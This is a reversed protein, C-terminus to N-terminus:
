KKAAIFKKLFDVWPANEAFKIEAPNYRPRFNDGAAPFYIVLGTSDGIDRTAYHAERVVAKKLEANTKDAKAKLSSAAPDKSLLNLFHGLDRAEDDGDYGTTQSRANKALAPNKAMDTALDMLAPTLGSVVATTDAASLTYEEPGSYQNGGPSYSKAFVDVMMKAYDLGSMNPNKSMAQAIGIYDNGDGAETKESGVLYNVHPQIQYAAEVHAMLCADFDLVDLKKGHNAVAKQLIPGLDKMDMNGGNDDWAFGQSTFDAGRGKPSKKPKVLKGNRFIGNGHNWVVVGVHEAPYTKTGWDLFKAMLAPDGSDVENGSFVPTSLKKSTIPAGNAPKKDSHTIEYIASDGKKEGDFLVIINTDTSNFGYAMEAMDKLGFPYLNNDAALHVFLTWKKAGAKTASATAQDNSLQDPSVSPTSCSALAAVLSTALTLSAIKKFFKSM